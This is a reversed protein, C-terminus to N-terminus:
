VSSWYILPFLLCIRVARQLLSSKETHSSCLYKKAASKTTADCGWWWVQNLPLLFCKMGRANYFLKSTKQPIEAKLCQIEEKCHYLQCCLHSSGQGSLRQASQNGRSSRWHHGTGTVAVSSPTRGQTLYWEPTPCQLQRGEGGAGWWQNSPLLPCLHFCGRMKCVENTVM